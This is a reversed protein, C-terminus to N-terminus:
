EGSDFELGLLLCLEEYTEQGSSSMRQYDWGLDDVMKIIKSIKKVTLKVQNLEFISMEM